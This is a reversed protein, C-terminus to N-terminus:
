YNFDILFATQTTNSNSVYVNYSETTSDALTFSMVNKTFGATINFNNPDIISVLDGYIAPYAYVYRQLTPSFSLNTHNAEKRVVKTLNKINTENVNALTLSGYYTPAAFEVLISTNQQTFNSYNVRLNFTHAYYLTSPSPSTSWTLNAPSNYTGSNSGLTTVVSNNLLIQRTSVIADNPTISYTMSKNITLGKEHLTSASLSITPNTFPYLIDDFLDQITAYNPISGSPLGGVTVKTGTPRIYSIDVLSGTGNSNLFQWTSNKYIYLDGNITDVCLSGNSITENFDTTSSTPIGNHELFFIGKVSSRIHKM